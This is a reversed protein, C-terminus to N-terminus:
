ISSEFISILFARTMGIIGPRTMGITGTLYFSIMKLFARTMGKAGIRLITVATVGGISFKELRWNRGIKDFINVFAL